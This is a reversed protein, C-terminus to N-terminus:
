LYHWINNHKVSLVFCVKTQNQGLFKSREDLKMSALNLRNQANQANARAGRLQDLQNHIGFEV